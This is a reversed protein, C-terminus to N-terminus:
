RAHACSERWVCVCVRCLLLCLLDLGVNKSASSSQSLGAFFSVLFSCCSLYREKQTREPERARRPMTHHHTRM